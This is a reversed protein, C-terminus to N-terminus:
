DFLALSYVYDYLWYKKGYSASFVAVLRDPDHKDFVPYIEHNTMPTNDVTVFHKYQNILHRPCRIDDARSWVSYDTVQKAHHKYGSFWTGQLLKSSFSRLAPLENISNLFYEFGDLDYWGLGLMGIPTFTFDEITVQNEYREITDTTHTEELDSNNNSLLIELDSKNATRKKRVDTGVHVRRTIRLPQLFSEYSFFYDENFGVYDGESITPIKRDTKLVMGGEFVYINLGPIYKVVQLNASLNFVAVLLLSFFAKKM